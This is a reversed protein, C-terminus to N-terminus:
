RSAAALLRTHLRNSPTAQQAPKSVKNQDAHLVIGGTTTTTTQLRFVFVLGIGAVNATFWGYLRSRIGATTVEVLSDSEAKVFHCQAYLVSLVARM